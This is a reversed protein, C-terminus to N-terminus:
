SNRNTLFSQGCAYNVIEICVCVLARADTSASLWCHTQLMLMSVINETSKKKNESWGSSIGFINVFFASLPIAEIFKTNPSSRLPSPALVVHRTHVSNISKFNNREHKAKSCRFVAEGSSQISSFEANSLSFHTSNSSARSIAFAFRKRFFHGCLIHEIGDGM